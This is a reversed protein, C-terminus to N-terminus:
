ILISRKAIYLPTSGCFGSGEVGPYIKASESTFSIYETLIYILPLQNLSDDFGKEEKEKEEFPMQSDAKTPTSSSKSFGTAKSHSLHTNLSRVVIPAFLFFVLVVSTLTLIPNRRNM